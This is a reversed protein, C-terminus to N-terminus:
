SGVKYFLSKFASRFIVQCHEPLLVGEGGPISSYHKISYTWFVFQTLDDICEYDNTCLRSVYRDMGLMIFYLERTPITVLSSLCWRLFWNMDCLGVQSCYCCQTLINTVTSFTLVLWFVQTITFWLTEKRNREIKRWVSHCKDKSTQNLSISM